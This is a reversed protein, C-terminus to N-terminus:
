LEIATKQGCNSYGCICTNKHARSFHVNSKHSETCETDIEMDNVHEAINTFCLHEIYSKKGETIEKEVVLVLM